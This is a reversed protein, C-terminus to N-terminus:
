GWSNKLTQGSFKVWWVQFFFSFFWTKPHSFTVFNSELSFVFSAFIWRFGSATSKQWHEQDGLFFLFFYNKACLFKLFRYSCLFISQLLFGDIWWAHCSSYFVIVQYDILWDISRDILWDISEGLSVFVELQMYVKSDANKVELTVDKRSFLGGHMVLVKKNILHSLPLLNFVETFIDYMQDSYKAKVEGRFGYISNMNDTEHNGAACVVSYLGLNCTCFDHFYDSTGRALFFHNPFLLKYGFLTMICEISFSGRDVFDGNFLQLSVISYWHFFAMTFCIQFVPFIDLIKM